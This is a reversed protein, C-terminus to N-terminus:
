RGVTVIGANQSNGVTVTVGNSDVVIATSGVYIVEVGAGSPPHFTVSAADSTGAGNYAEISLVDADHVDTFPFPSDGGTLGESVTSGNVKTRGLGSSLAYTLNVNYSDIVLSGLTPAAPITGSAATAAANFFFFYPVTIGFM